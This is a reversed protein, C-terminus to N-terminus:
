SQLCIDALKMKLSNEYKSVYDLSYVRKQLAKLGSFTM